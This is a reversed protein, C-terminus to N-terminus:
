GDTVKLLVLETEHLELALEILVELVLLQAALVVLLLRSRGGVVSLLLVLVLLVLLLEVVLNFGDLLLLALLLLLLLEVANFLLLLHQLLVQARLNCIGSLRWLRSGRCCSIADLYVAPAAHIM